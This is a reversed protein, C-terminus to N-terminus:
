APRFGSCMVRLWDIRGDRETFYAQHELVFPGDGNRGTFRYAVHERDAVTGTDIREVAEIEDEAGFWRTLVDAVLADPGSAEWVRNPTMGRFDLEPHVLEKVRDFDKAALARALDEGLGAM